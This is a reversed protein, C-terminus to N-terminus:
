ARPFPPNRFGSARLWFGTKQGEAEHLGEFFGDVEILHTEQSDIMWSVFVDIRVFVEGRIRRIRLELDDHAAIGTRGGTCPVFVAVVDEVIQQSMAIETVELHRVEPAECLRVREREVEALGVGAAREPQQGM